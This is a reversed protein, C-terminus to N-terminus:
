AAPLALQQLRQVIVDASAVDQEILVARRGCMVAAEAVTGSGAMPDLVLGGPPTGERILPEVAALPKEDQHRKRYRVSPAEILFTVSRPQRTGDDQWSTARGDRQHEASRSAKRVTGKNATTREREWEHHLDGWAGRYWHYAWEHVKVLRDRSGPGSGNRKVWLAEQAFRWGAFEDRQELFMRASGFCWLSAAPPLVDGVAKVWGDPWRDWAAATEGYPPDTVCADPREPLTPLIERCDGVYLTVGADRDEYYPKVTSRTLDLQGPVPDPAPTDLLARTRALAPTM